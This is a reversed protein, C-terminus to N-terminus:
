YFAFLCFLIDVDLDVYQCCIMEFDLGSFITHAPLCILIVPRVSIVVCIWTNECSDVDCVDVVFTSFAIGLQSARWQFVFQWLLVIICSLVRLILLSCCLKMCVISLIRWYLCCICFVWVSCISGLVLMQHVISINWYITSSLEILCCHVFVLDTFLRCM